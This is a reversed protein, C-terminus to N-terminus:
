PAAPGPAPIIAGKQEQEPAVVGASLILKLGVEVPMDLDIVQARPLMLFFGSTPNPTTPVFVNVMDQGTRRQVEAIGEGTIFALTWVDKRPYEILAVRRFSQGKNSFVTELVQKVASYISRVLPIRGLMGEWVRVLQRGFLNAAIIGTVLVVVFTLVFGLGPIRFGLLHEPQAAAPLLVLTQDMIDILFKVILVTVWLPVWVLLGAVLYRRLSAMM